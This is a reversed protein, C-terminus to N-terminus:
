DYGTKREWEVARGWLGSGHISGPAGAGCNVIEGVARLLGFRALRHGDRRAHGAAVSEWGQRQANLDDFRAVVHAFCVRRILTGPAIKRHLRFPFATVRSACVPREGGNNRRINLLM